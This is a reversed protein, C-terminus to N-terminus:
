NNMIKFAITQLYREGKRLVASPFDPQNPADPFNQCEIAVGDYDNYSRGSKSVPSGGLWNGTYVQVGRQTTLVDMAIGSQPSRLTAIRKIKGQEWHDIVWCNDYGKGFKLADFDAHIDKGLTKPATFDMPTGRVPAIEGTPILTSDTPLWHSARLEMTHELVTGSNEGSLNFYAHNTLNVITDADATAALTMLLQNDNGLTYTVQAQLTAPYGEDGDKSELSFVVENNKAAVSWLRNAFGEVGGHLHNPGNNISPLQYTTGNLVFRGKAIRNAFRGPVKGACPGDYFYDGMDKYGLVIDTPKGNRDPVVFSVIGAGINSLSVRVGNDNTLTFLVIEGKAHQISKKETKM